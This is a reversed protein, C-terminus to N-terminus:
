REALRIRAFVPATFAAYLLASLAVMFVRRVTADQEFISNYGLAFALTYGGFIGIFLASATALGWLPSRLVMAQLAGVAVGAVIAIPLYGAALSLGDGVEHTIAM